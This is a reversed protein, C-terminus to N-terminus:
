SFLCTTVGADSITITASNDSAASSDALCQIGSAGAAFTVSVTGGATSCSVTVNASGTTIGTDVDSAAATACVKAFGIAEGVVAGAAAASRANLYTPVVVASLVGVIALVIMLEVLTFARKVGCRSRLSRILNIQTNSALRMPSRGAKAQM